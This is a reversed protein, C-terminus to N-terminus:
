AVTLLQQYSTALRSYFFPFIVTFVEEKERKDHTTTLCIFSQEIIDATSYCIRKNEQMLWKQTVYCTCKREVRFLKMLHLLRFYMKPGTNNPIHKYDYM